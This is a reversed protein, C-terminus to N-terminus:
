RFPLISVCAETQLCFQHTHLVRLTSSVKKILQTAMAHLAVRFMTYDEQWVEVSRLTVWLNRAEAPFKM